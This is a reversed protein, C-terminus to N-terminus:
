YFILPLPTLPRCVLLCRRVIAAQVVRRSTAGRRCPHRVPRCDTGGGRFRRARGAGRRGRRRASGGPAADVDGEGGTRHWRRHRRRGGAKWHRLRNCRRCQRRNSSPPCPFVPPARSSCPLLHIRARHHRRRPGLHDGGRRAILRTEKTGPWM